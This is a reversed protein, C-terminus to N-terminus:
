PIERGNSKEHVMEPLVHEVLYIKYYKAKKYLRFEIDLRLKYGPSFISIAVILKPFEINDTRSINTQYQNM